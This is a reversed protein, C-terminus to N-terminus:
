RIKPSIVSLVSRFTLHDQLLISWLRVLPNEEIRFDDMKYRFKAM